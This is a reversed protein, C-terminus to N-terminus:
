QIIIRTPPSPCKETVFGWRKDHGTINSWNSIDYIASIEYEGAILRGGSGSDSKRVYEGGAFLWTSLDVDITWSEGPNLLRPYPGPLSKIAPPFVATTVETKQKGDIRFIEFRLVFFGFYGYQTHGQYTFTPITIPNDSINKFSVTLTQPLGSRLSESTGVVSVEMKANGDDIHKEDSALTSLRVSTLCILSVVWFAIKNRM